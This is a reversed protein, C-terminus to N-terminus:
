LGSRPDTPHTPPQAIYGGDVESMADLFEGITQLEHPTRRALVRQMHEAYGPYHQALRQQGKEEPVVLIERRDKTDRERRVYDGRELRDPLATVSRTTLCTLSAIQSPTMAGNVTLLSLVQADTADLCVRAAVAKNHVVVAAIFRLVEHDSHALRM